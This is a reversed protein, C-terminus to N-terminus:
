FPIDADIEYVTETLEDIEECGNFSIRYDEFFNVFIEEEAEKRFYEEARWQDFRESEEYNAAYEPDTAMLEAHTEYM